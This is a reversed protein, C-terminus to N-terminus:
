VLTVLKHESQRYAKSRKHQVKNYKTQANATAYLM